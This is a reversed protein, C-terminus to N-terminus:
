VLRQQAFAEKLLAQCESELIGGTISVTTDYLATLNMASGLAGEQPSYAGFVIYGVRAQLLAAACMPCPELTVLAICDNLRWRGLRQSAERLAILEAHGLPDHHHERQNFGRAIIEFTEFQQSGDNKPNLILCGVPVDHPLGHRALQIAERMWHQLPQEEEAQMDTELIISAVEVYISPNNQFDLLLHLPVGSLGRLSPVTFRLGFRLQGEVNASWKATM